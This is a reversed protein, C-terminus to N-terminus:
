EGPGLPAIHIMQPRAGDFNPVYADNLDIINTSNTFISMANKTDIFQSCIKRLLLSLDYVIFPILYLSILRALPSLGGLWSGREVQEYKELM